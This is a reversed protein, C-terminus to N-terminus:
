SLELIIQLVALSFEVQGVALPKFAHKDLISYTTRPDVM